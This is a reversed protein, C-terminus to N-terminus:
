GRPAPPRVSNLFAEVEKIVMEKEERTLKDWHERLPEFFRRLSSYLAYAKGGREDGLDVM